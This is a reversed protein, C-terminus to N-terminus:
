GVEEWVPRRRRRQIARRLQEDRLILQKQARRSRLSLFPIM